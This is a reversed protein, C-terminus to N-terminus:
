PNPHLRSTFEQPTQIPKTPDTQAMIKLGSVADRKLAEFAARGEATQMAQLHALVRNISEIDQRQVNVEYNVCLVHFILTCTLLIVIIRKM